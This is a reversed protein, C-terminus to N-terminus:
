SEAEAQQETAAVIEQAVLRLKVNRHQSLRTLFAFAREETLGYREMVIGIAQGIAKRTQIAEQLNQVERAYSIAVAAQHAFLESLSGLDGFAGVTPSYLNLAGQSKPADFLRLGAQSRIGAEVARAGYRPFREDAALDASIVHATDVAAQYCPGEQLEYQATDLDWLLDDTPAVTQLSGDAHRITLSAYRVDPLVEVAAATIQRLTQDLDGATLTRSLRRAAEVMREEDM